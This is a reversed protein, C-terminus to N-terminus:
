STPDNAIFGDVGAALLAPDNNVLNVGWAWVKTGKAHAQACLSKTIAKDQIGISNLGDPITEPAAGSLQQAHLGSGALIRVTAPDFACAVVQGRYPWLTEVFANRAAPTKLEIMLVRGTGGFEALVDSLFAAPASPGGTPSKIRLAKWETVSMDAVAGTAGDAVGDVKTDHSIVLTGDKLAMVDMELVVDPGLGAAWRFAAMTGEPKVGAGGRHAAVAPVAIREVPDLARAPTSLQNVDGVVLM